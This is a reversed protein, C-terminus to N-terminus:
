GCEELMETRTNALMEAHIELSDINTERFLEMGEPTRMAVRAMSWGVLAEGMAAQMPYAVGLVPEVGLELAGNRRRYDAEWCARGHWVMLLSMVRRYRRVAIDFAALIMKKLPRRQGENVLEIAETYLGQAQQLAGAYDGPAPITEQGCVPVTMIVLAAVLKRM